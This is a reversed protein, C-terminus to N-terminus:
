LVLHVSHLLLNARNLLLAFMKHVAHLLLAVVEYLLPFLFGSLKDAVEQFKKSGIPSPYTVRQYPSFSNDDIGDDDTSQPLQMDDSQEYLYWFSIDTM